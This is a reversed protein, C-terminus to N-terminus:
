KILKTFGSPSVQIVNEQGKQNELIIKGAEKVGGYLNFIVENNPFDIEKFSIESPLKKTLIEEQPSTKKIIKYEKTSTIFYVSYDIQQSLALEQAYRLDTILDRSISSIKLTPILSLIAFLSTGTIIILIGIAIMLELITFGEIKKLNRFM